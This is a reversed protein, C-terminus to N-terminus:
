NNIIYERLSKLDEFTEILQNINLYEILLPADKLKGYKKKKKVNSKKESYYRGLITELIRTPNIFEEPHDKFLKSEADRIKIESKERIFRPNYCAEISEPQSLIWAEMEQIMFFVRNSFVEIELETLRTQKTSKAGDLDILLLTKSDNQAYDKFSKAANKYGAGVEVILNFTDPNFAKSLLKHFSERLRESNNITAAAINMHPLIGGEIVIRIEVM